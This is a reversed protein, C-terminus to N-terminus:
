FAQLIDRLNESERGFVPSCYREFAERVGYGGAVMGAIELTTRISINSVLDGSKFLDRVKIAISVIKKADSSSVGTRNKLLDMELEMPPYELEVFFFRDVFAADLTNTGVYSNGINATAIFVSNDDRKVIRNLKSHCMSMNISRSRDLLPFLISNTEQSCRNVEDLLILNPEQIDSIFSSQDFISNGAEIRHVGILSSIADDCTSMDYKKLPKNFKKSILECLETKGLGSDGKLLINIGKTVGYVIDKWNEKSIYFNDDEITPVGYEDLLKEILSIKSPAKNASPEKKPEGPIAPGSSRNIDQEIKNIENIADTYQVVEMYKNDSSQVFYVSSSAPKRVFVDRLRFCTGVPNSDRASKNCSVNWSPDINIFYDQRDESNGKLFAYQSPLPRARLSAGDHVTNVYFYKPRNEESIYVPTM